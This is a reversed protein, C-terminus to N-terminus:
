LNLGGSPIVPLFSLLILLKASRIIFLVIALALLTKYNENYKKWYFIKWILSKCLISVEVKELSKITSFTISRDCVLHWWSTVITQEFPVTFEFLKRKAEINGTTLLARSVVMWYWNCSFHSGNFIQNIKWKLQVPSNFYKFHLKLLYNNM